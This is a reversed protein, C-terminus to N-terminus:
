IEGYFAHDGVTMIKKMKKYWTANPDAIAHNIYHDMNGYMDCANTNLVHQAMMTAIYHSKADHFIEPKGDSYYSFQKHDHVVDRVNDPWRHSAVRNKIVCGVAIQGALIQDRSEFYIAEAMYEVDENAYSETSCFTLTTLCLVLIVLNILWPNNPKTSEVDWVSKCDHEEFHGNMWTGCDPCMRRYNSM